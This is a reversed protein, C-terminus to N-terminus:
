QGAEGCLRYLDIMTRPAPLPGPVHRKVRYDGTALTGLPLDRSTPGQSPLWGPDRTAYISDLAFGVVQERSLTLAGVPSVEGNIHHSGRLLRARTWGWILAAWEPHQYEGGGASPAYDEYEWGVGWRRTTARALEHDPIADDALAMRPVKKPGRALSGIAHLLINRVAKAVLLNVEDETALIGAVRAVGAEERMELLKGSWLRLPCLYSNVGDPVVATIRELVEVRWGCEVALAVEHHSAWTELPEMEAESRSPWHWGGDERVPLIGVHRWDEPVWFRVRYWGPPLSSCALLPRGEMKDHRWEKGSRLYAAGAAYALTMDLVYLDPITWEVRDERIYHVWDVPSPCCEFRGQGSTERIITQLEPPLTPWVGGVVGRRVEQLRKWALLGTRGPTPQLPSGFWRKLQDDLTRFVRGATEETVDDPLGWLHFFKQDPIMKFVM